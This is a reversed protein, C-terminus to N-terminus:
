GSKRHPYLVACQVLQGFGTVPCMSSPRASTGLIVAHSVRAGTLAVVVEVEIDVVGVVPMVEMVVDVVVVDGVPEEVVVRSYMATAIIITTM